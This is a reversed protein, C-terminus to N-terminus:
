KSHQQVSINEFPLNPEKSFSSQSGQGIKLYILSQPSSGRVRNSQPTHAVGVEPECQGKSDNAWSYSSGRGMGESSFSRLSKSLYQSIAQVSFNHSIDLTVCCAVLSTHVLDVIRELSIVFTIYTELDCINELPWKRQESQGGSRKQPYM